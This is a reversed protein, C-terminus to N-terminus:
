RWRAAAGPPGTRSPTSASSATGPPWCRRLAARLVRPHRSCIRLSMALSKAEPLQVASAGAPRAESRGRARAGARPRRRRAHRKRSSRASGSRKLSSLYDVFLKGDLHDIRTSFACRSCATPTSSSPSATRDLAAGPDARVGCATTSALSRSAARRWRRTARAPSSRPNIFAARRRVTRRCTSSSCAGPCTSRPRPWVSAPAAYMTEFMDDVLRRM